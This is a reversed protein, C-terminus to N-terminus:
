KEELRKKLARIKSAPVKKRVALRLAERGLIQYARLADPFRQLARLHGQITQEDGRAMPGTLATKRDFHKVNQLTGEVLPLLVSSAMKSKIGIAQLLRCSMDFLPVFLNSAMSCATHYLPKDQPRLLLPRGGLRRAIEKARALAPGDGEIGFYINKFRGPPTRKSPFSQVPHFSAVFAGRRKVPELTKSSLIGSTHFVIKREWDVKSRALAAATREINEDPICLFLVASGEAAGTWDDTAEGAGVIKRSEKAASLSKDALCRITWGKKFLALALSTGLRGTGIFSVTKM